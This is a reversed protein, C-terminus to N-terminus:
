LWLLCFRDDDLLLFRSAARVETVFKALVQRPGLACRISCDFVLKLVLLRIPETRKQVYILEEYRALSIVM